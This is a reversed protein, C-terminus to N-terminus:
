NSAPTNADPGDSGDVPTVVEPTPTIPLAANKDAEVEDPTLTPGVPGGPLETLDAPEWGRPVFAERYLDMPTVGHEEWHKRGEIVTVGAFTFAADSFASCFWFPSIEDEIHELVHFFPDLFQPTLNDFGVLGDGAYDYKANKHQTLFHKLREVGRVDLRFQSHPNAPGWYGAPRWTLGGPEMGLSGPEKHGWFGAPVSIYSHNEKGKTVDDIVKAFIGNTACVFIEWPWLEDNTKQDTV